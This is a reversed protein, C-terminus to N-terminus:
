RCNAFLDDWPKISELILSLPSVYLSQLGNLDGISVPITGTLLNLDFSRIAVDISPHISAFSSSPSSSNSIMSFMFARHAYLFQLATLNGIHEPITGTLLNSSLVSLTQHSCSKPLLRVLFCNTCINSAQCISSAWQSREQCNITTCSAIM